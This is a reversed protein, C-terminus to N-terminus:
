IPSHLGRKRKRKCIHVYARCAERARLRRDGHGYSARQCHPQAAPHGALEFPLTSGRDEGQTRVVSVFVQALQELPRKGGAFENTRADTRVFDKQFDSVHPAPRYLEALRTTASRGALQDASSVIPM